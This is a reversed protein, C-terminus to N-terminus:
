RKRFRWDCSSGFTQNDIRGGSRAFFILARHAPQKPQADITARLGLDACLLDPNPRLPHGYAAQLRDHQPHQILIKIDIQDFKASARSYFPARWARM